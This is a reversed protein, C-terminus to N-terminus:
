VLSAALKPGLKIKGSDLLCWTSSLSPSTIAMWCAMFKM